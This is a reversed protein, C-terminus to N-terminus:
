ELDTWEPSLQTRLNGPNTPRRSLAPIAMNPRKRATGRTRRSRTAKNAIQARTMPSSATVDTEDEAIAALSVVAAAPNDDPGAWVDVPVAAGAAVEAGAADAAPDGAAVEAGDAGAAAAAAAADGVGSGDDAFEEALVCAYQAIAVNIPTSIRSIGMSIGNAMEQQNNPL